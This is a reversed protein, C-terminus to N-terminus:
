HSLAVLDLVISPFNVGKLTVSRELHSHHTAKISLEHFYYLIKFLQSKIVPKLFIQFDTYINLNLLEM